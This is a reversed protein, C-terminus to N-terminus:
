QALIMIEVEIQVLAAFVACAPTEAKGYAEILNSRLHCIFCKSLGDCLASLTIVFGKIETIGNFLLEKVHHKLDESENWDDDSPLTLCESELSQLYKVTIDNATM